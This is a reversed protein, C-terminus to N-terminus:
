AETRGSMSVLQLTPGLEDSLATEATRIERKLLDATERDRRALLVYDECEGIHLSANEGLGNALCELFLTRLKEFRLMGGDAILNDRNRYTVQVVAPRAGQNREVAGKLSAPFHAAVNRQVRRNLMAIGAETLTYSYVDLRAIRAGDTRAGCDLCM